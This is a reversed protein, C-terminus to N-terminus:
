DVADRKRIKLLVRLESLPEKLREALNKAEETAMPSAVISRMATEALSVSGMLGYHRWRMLKRQYSEQARANQRVDILPM